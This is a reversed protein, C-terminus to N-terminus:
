PWIFKLLLANESKLKKVQTPFDIVENKKVTNELQACRQSFRCTSVTEEYNDSDISLCTILSTKCNGGLSDKLIMTMPSNRYPVHISKGQQMAKLSIIVQELYSLSLNIHKTETILNGEIHGKSIRESGALDVLHLKSVMVSNDAKSKCEFILTFICHSRSSCMNMPTSSVQRIFNGMMMLNIGQQETQCDHVSLNKLHVNGDNDQYMM